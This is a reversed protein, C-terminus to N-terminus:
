RGLPYCLRDSSGPAVSLLGPMSYSRTFKVSVGLPHKAVILRVDAQELLVYGLPDLDTAIEAATPDGM